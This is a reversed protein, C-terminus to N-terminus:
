FLFQKIGFWLLGVIGFIIFLIVILGVLSGLIRPLDSDTPREPFVTRTVESFVEKLEKTSLAKIEEQIKQKRSGRGSSRDDKRLKDIQVLMNTADSNGCSAATLLLRYALDRNPSVVMEKFYRGTWFMQGLDFLASSDGRVAASVLKEFEARDM